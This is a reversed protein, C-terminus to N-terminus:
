DDRNHTKSHVTTLELTDYWSWSRPLQFASSRTAAALKGWSGRLKLNSFINVDKMFDELKRGTIKEVVDNSGAFIGNQYDQAVEVLHQTLFPNFKYVQEM